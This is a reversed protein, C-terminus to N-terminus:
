QQGERNEDYSFINYLSRACRTKRSFVLTGNLYRARDVMGVSRVTMPPSIVETYLCPSTNFMVLPELVSSLLMLPEKSINFVEGRSTNFM